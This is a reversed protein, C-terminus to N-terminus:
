DLPLNLLTDVPDLEGLVDPLALLEVPKHTAREIRRALWADAGSAPDHVFRLGSVGARRGLLRAAGLVEADTGILDGDRRLGEERLRTPEFEDQRLLHEGERTVAAALADNLLWPQALLATASTGAPQGQGGGATRRAALTTASPQLRAWLRAVHAPGELLDRLLIVADSEVADGLEAPVARLPPLGPLALALAGPFDAIFAEQAGGRRAAEEGNLRPVVLMDVDQALSRAQAAALRFGWTPVANVADDELALRVGETTPLVAEAGAARILELWFEGYRPWLLQTLLGIRVASSDIM